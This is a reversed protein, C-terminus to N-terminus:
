CASDKNMNPHGELVLATYDAPLGMLLEEERIMLRRTENAMQSFVCNSSDYLSPSQSYSDLSWRALTADDM